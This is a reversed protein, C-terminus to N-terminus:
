IEGYERRRIVFDPYCGGSAADILVPEKGPDCFISFSMPLKPIRVPRPRDGGRADLLSRGGGAFSCM